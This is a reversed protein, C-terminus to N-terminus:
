ESFLCDNKLMTSFNQFLLKNNKILLFPFRKYTTEYAHISLHLYLQNFLKQIGAYSLSCKLASLLVITLFHVTLFKREIIILIYINFESKDLAILIVKSICFYYKIIQICIHQVM